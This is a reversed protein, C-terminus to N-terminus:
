NVHKKLLLLLKIEAIYLYVCMTLVVYHVFFVSMYISTVFLTISMLTSSLVFLLISTRKNGNHDKVFSPMLPMTIVNDILTYMEFMHVNCIGIQYITLTRFNKSFNIFRNVYILDQIVLSLM